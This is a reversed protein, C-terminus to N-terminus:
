QQRVYTGMLEGQALIHREMAQVLETKTVGAELDLLKDLTYLRFHYRQTFPPCPGLMACGNREIGVMYASM